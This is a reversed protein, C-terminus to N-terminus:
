RADRMVYIFDHRSPRVRGRRYMLPSSVWNRRGGIGSSRLHFAAGPLRRRWRAPARLHGKIPHGARKDTPQASIPGYVLHHWTHDRWNAGFSGRSARLCRSPVRAPHKNHAHTAAISTKKLHALNLRPPRRVGGLHSAREARISAAITYTFDHSKKPLYTM